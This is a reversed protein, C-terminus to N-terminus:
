QGFLSNLKARTSAGVLGTGKILGNPTLIESAYKEQFKIVAKKTLAGFYGTIKGEPYITPDKALWTQLIRVEDNSMAAKLVKTIRSILLGPPQIGSNGATGIMAILQNILATIRVIEAQLEPITMQSIPKTVIPITVTTTTTTFTTTAVTTTAVVTAPVTPSGAIGGGGTIVSGGGTLGEFKTGSSAGSTTSNNGENDFASVKYYYTTNVPISSNTWSCTGNACSTGVLVSSVFSGTSWSDGSVNSFTGDAATSRYVEYGAVSTDDTSTTWSVIISTGSVAGSPTGPTSPPNSGSPLLPAYLSFHSTNARIKNNDKDVVADVATWENTSENWYGLTLQDETGGAATIDSESYSIELSITSGSGATTDTDASGKLSTNNSDYISVEKAKGGLPKRSDTSPANTERVIVKGQGTDDDFNQPITLKVGTDGQSDDFVGGQSPIMSQQKSEKVTYGSKASLTINVTPNSAASVISGYKTENYGDASSKIQWYGSGVSLSYNGQSDTQGGSWGGSLTDNTASTVKEAWVWASSIATSGDSTIKGSITNANTTLIFDKTTSSTFTTDTLAEGSYGPKDVGMRYTGAPVRMSYAGSSSSFANFQFGSSLNSIWVMAGAVAGATSTVTGSIVVQNGATPLTFVIVKSATGEAITTKHTTASYGSNGTPEFEGLGPVIARILYSRGGTNTVKLNESSTASAIIPIELHNGANNTSDFSDIFARTSSAPANVFRFSLTTFQGSAPPALNATVDGSVCSSSNTGDKYTLAYEGYTTDKAHIRYCGSPVKLSYNGSSDSMARNEYRQNSTTLGEIWIQVNTLMSAGTGTNGSITNMSSKATSPRLNVSQNASTVVVTASPLDGLESTHGSVKWTGASVYLVFLGSSDTSGPIFQGNATNNAWVQANAVKKADSATDEYVYGSITYGGKTVYLVLPSANTVGISGDIYANATTNSDVLADTTGSPNKDNQTIVVTKQSSPPLGPKFAQLGYTEAANSDGLAVKLEFKGTTDTQSHSPMGFGATKFADVGADAIANGSSDKVYGIIKQTATKIEFNLKCDNATNSSEICESKFDSANGTTSATVQVNAPPMWDPMLVPGMAVPGEPMAPGIGVRWSGNSPLYFNYLTFGALNGVAVLKKKVFGNPSSAFIDVDRNGFNGKLYVEIATAGSKDGGTLIFGRSANSGSVRIPDPMAIGMVDKSTSASCIADACVPLSLGSNTFLFYEGDPLGTFTTTATKQGKAFSITGEMPGTMPSGLNVKLTSTALGIASNTSSANVTIGISITRSGAQTITFPMTSKTELVTSGDPKKTSIDITYGSTNAAPNKIGSVDFHYFDLASPTGTIALKLTITELDANVAIGDSDYSADLTVVGPGPGNWDTRMPSNPDPIANTVDFGQKKFDLVVFGGNELAKTTPIDFFYLTSLNAMSNMPRAAVPMMGMDEPKNTGIMPGIIGGATTPPGMMLGSGSFTGYTQSHDKMPAVVSDYSENLANNSIDTINDVFVCLDNGVTLAAGGAAKINEIKAVMRGADYSVKASTLVAANGNACDVGFNTGAAGYKITYNASNLTSSAWKSDSLSVALVPENFEIEAVYNDANLKVVQPGTTDATGTTTFALAYMQVGVTGTDGDLANGALDQVSTAFTLNYVSNIQLVESPVFRAKNSFGDYQVTGDVNTTGGNIKVTMSNKDVTSPNIAESFNVEIMNSVPVNIYSSGSLYKGLNTGLVTPNGSDVATGADFDGKFVMFSAQNPPGITIGAASKAGGLVKVRYHVSSTFNSAPDITAIKKTATDLAVSFSLTCNETEAATFANSVSCLKFNDSTFTTSDMPDSFMMLINSDLPVGFSGGPPTMGTVFPPMFAGGSGFQGATMGSIDGSTTFLFMQGGAQRNGQLPNGNSSLVGSTIEVIYQSDPALQQSSYLIIKRDPGFCNGAVGGTTCFSTADLPDYYHVATSTVAVLSGSVVQKLTVTSTTITTSSANQSLSILIPSRTQSMDSKNFAIDKPAGMMNDNPATWFVKFAEMTGGVGGGCGASLFLLNNTVGTFFPPPSVDCFGPKFATLKYSGAAMNTLSFSGTNAADGSSTANHITGEAFIWADPILKYIKTATTITVASDVTLSNTSTGLVQRVASITDLFIYDGVNIQGVEYSTYSMPNGALPITTSASVAIAPSLSASFVVKGGINAAGLNSNQATISFPSSSALAQSVGPMYSSVTAPTTTAIAGVYYGIQRNVDGPGVGIRCEHFGIGRHICASNFFAGDSNRYYVKVQLKATDTAYSGVDAYPASPGGARVFISATTTAGGGAQGVAKNVPMHMVGVGAEQALVFPASLAVGFVVLSFCFIKIIRM